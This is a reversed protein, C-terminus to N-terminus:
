SSPDPLSFQRLFLYSLLFIAFFARAYGTGLALQQYGAPCRCQKNQYEHPIQHIHTDDLPRLIGGLGLALPLIGHTKLRVTPFYLVSVAVNQRFAVGGILDAGVGGGDALVVPLTNGVNQCRKQIQIVIRDVALDGLYARGGAGQILLYLDLILHIGVQHRLKGGVLQAASHAIIGIYLSIVRFPLEKCLQQAKGVYVAITLGPHLKSVVAIQGTLVALLDQFRVPVAIRDDASFFFIHLRHM